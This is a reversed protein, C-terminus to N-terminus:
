NMELFIPLTHKITKQSPLPLMTMHDMSKKTSKSIPNIIKRLCGDTNLAMMLSLLLTYLIMHGMYTTM